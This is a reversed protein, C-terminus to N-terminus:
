HLWKVRWLVVVGGALFHELHNLRTLEDLSGFETAVHVAGALHGNRYPGIM